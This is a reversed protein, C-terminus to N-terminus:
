ERGLARETGGLCAGLSRRFSNGLFRPRRGPVGPHPPACTGWPKVEQCAGGADALNAAKGIAFMRDEAFFFRCRILRSNRLVPCFDAIRVATLFSRAAIAALSEACIGARSLSAVLSMARKPPRPVMLGRVADRAVERRVRAVCAQGAPLWARAASAHPARLTRSLRRKAFM